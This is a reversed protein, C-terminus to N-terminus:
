MRKVRIRSVFTVRSRFVAWPVETRSPNGPWPDRLVVSQFIPQNGFGVSYSVATLVYAHGGGGPEAIGVIMPWHYALDAVIDSGQFVIPSATITAPRGDVEFGWGSLAALVQAPQAASNIDGGFVRRVIQEQTVVVGHYNLVMQVTAAWCWNSQRQRGETEAAAFYDFEDTPIGAAWLGPCIQRIDQAGASVALGFLILGVLAMSRLCGTIRPTGNTDIMASERRRKGSGCFRSLFTENWLASEERLFPCLFELSVFIAESTFM